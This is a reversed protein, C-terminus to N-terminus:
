VAGAEEGERPQALSDRGGGVVEVAKAVALWWRSEGVELEVVTLFRAVLGV